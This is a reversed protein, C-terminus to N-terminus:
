ARFRARGEFALAHDIRERLHAAMPPLSGVPFWRVDTSEDDAVRALGSRYRCRFTLDLFQCRDGNPFTMPSDSGVAALGEVAIVVGTEEEAERVACAAPEEGPELMGTVPTWAGNDSRKVLLINAHDDLIVATVGPLWLLDHGIKERLALVFDPAAM